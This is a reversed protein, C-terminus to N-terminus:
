GTTPAGLTWSPSSPGKRRDRSFLRNAPSFDWPDPTGHGKPAFIREDAEPLRSFYQWLPPMARRWWRRAGRWVTGALSVLQRPGHDGDGAQASRSNPPSQSSRPLPLCPHGGSLGRRTIRWTSGQRVARRLWPPDGWVPVRSSTSGPRGVRLSQRLATDDDTTPALGSVARM